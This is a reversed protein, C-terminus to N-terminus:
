SVKMTLTVKKENTKFYLHEINIYGKIVQNETEIELEHEFDDFWKYIPSNFNENFPCCFIKNQNNLCVRIDLEYDFPLDFEVDATIQDKCIKM